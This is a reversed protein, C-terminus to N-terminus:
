GDYTRALLTNLNGRMPKKKVMCHGVSSEGLGVCGLAPRVLCMVCAGLNSLRYAGARLVMKCDTVAVPRIRCIFLHGKRGYETGRYDLSTPLSGRPNRIVSFYGIRRCRRGM